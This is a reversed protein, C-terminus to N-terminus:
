CASLQTGRMGPVDKPIEFDLKFTTNANTEGIAGVEELKKYAEEIYWDFNLDEPFSQPLDMLPQAGLSRAVLDGKFNRLGDTQSTSYYWRIAKGISQNNQDFAGKTVKRLTLFQTIDECERITEEVPTQNQLYKIVAVNVIPNALNHNLDPKAYAGKAKYGDATIAIYNNVDKSWLSVYETSELNFETLMEWFEAIRDCEDVQNRHCKIVVGDTNASVVEIGAVHLMEILMLLSLQGTLTTQILLQPSYLVSWKSGFKGFSGNVTIKLTADTVKDGSRKAEVRRKLISEYVKTFHAGLHAPALGTKLIINPYYSTVDRDMLVTDKDAVHNISKEMSHLGGIGCKYSTNGIMIEIRNIDDPTGVRGGDGILFDSHTIVDLAHKLQPLEFSIFKPARYRFRTGIQDAPREVRRGSLRAVETKIVNEAIQSDSKSRLDIGYDRTLQERLVIQQTLEQFLRRTVILDNVCYASLLERERPSISASPEIPLDQLKPCHMRGGYMKLSTYRGAVEILDIHDAEIVEIGLKRPTMNNQIIKDSVNKCEQNTAGNIAMTLIPLDYNVSNFGILRCGQLIRCIPKVDLLQGPYMEYTKVSENEVNMFAVLFYDKYVEIDFVVDPKSV